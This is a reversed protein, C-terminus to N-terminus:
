MFINQSFTQPPPHYILAWGMKAVLMKVSVHNLNHTFVAVGFLTFSGKTLVFAM